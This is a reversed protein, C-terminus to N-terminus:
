KARLIHHALALALPQCSRHRFYIFLDIFSYENFQRHNEYHSFNFIWKPAVDNPPAHEACKAVYSERLENSRNTVRRLMSNRNKKQARRPDTHAHTLNIAAMNELIAQKESTLLVCKQMGRIRCIEIAVRDSCHQGIFYIELHHQDSVHIELSDLSSSLLALDFRFSCSHSTVSLMIIDNLPWESCRIKMIIDCELFWLQIKRITRQTKNRIDSHM